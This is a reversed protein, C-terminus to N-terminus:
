VQAPAFRDPSFAQALPSVQRSFMMDAIIQATIPALLIGNRYHGTALFIPRDKLQGLIPAHDPTGPRVGAWSELVKAGALGPYIDVASRLLDTISKADTSQRVIGPEVTAGIVVRDQKPAIYVAGSRITQTPHDPLKEVSLLQGGVPKVSAAEPLLEQSQWGATCLAADFVDLLDAVNEVGTDPRLEIRESSRCVGILAAVVLRNDVQGDSPLSLAGLLGTNLGPQIVAAQEVSLESYDIGYTDLQRAILDLKDAETQTTAVALSPGPRYGISHRCAQELRAAYDPWLKASQLCLDFLQKHGGRESAAEYAPALMGAAAWSAGRGFTGKDFLTIQAGRRALELACSLGIIGAGIVAIRKGPFTTNLASIAM